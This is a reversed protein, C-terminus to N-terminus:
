GISDGLLGGPVGPWLVAASTGSARIWYMTDKASKSRPLFLASQGMAPSDSPGQGRLARRHRQTM